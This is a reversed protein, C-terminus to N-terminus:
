MCSGTERSIIGEIKLIKHPKDQTIDQSDCYSKTKATNSFALHVGPTVADLTPTSSGSLSWIFHSLKVTTQNPFSLGVEKAVIAGAAISYTGNGSTKDMIVTTPTGGIGGKLSIRGVVHETGFVLHLDLYDFSNLSESIPLSPLDFVNKDGQWLTVTRVAQQTKSDICKLSNFIGCIACNQLRDVLTSAKAFDALLRRLEEENCLIGSCIRNNIDGLLVTLADQLDECSTSNGKIGKNKGINECVKSDYPIGSECYDIGKKKLNDISGQINVACDDAVCCPGCGGCGGCGGSSCNNCAM